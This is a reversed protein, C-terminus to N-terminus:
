RRARVPASRKSDTVVPSRRVAKARRSDRLDIVTDDTRTDDTADPGIPQSDIRETGFLRERLEPFDRGARDYDDPRGIDLWYGDFAHVHPPEGHALLDMVVDDFGLPRPPGSLLSRSMAYVGMSVQHQFEPKEAFRDLRGDTVELVGFDVKVTRTQAAITLTAGISVHQTVMAGMDLDSLVDANMVLFDSPLEDLHALLPGATGLPVDEDWCTIPIGWRSGDGVFSRILHGMHGLALSIETFGQAKLQRILVEIMSMEDGIPVLPKPICTTYPRLRIGEGGALIVAKM